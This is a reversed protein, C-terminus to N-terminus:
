KGFRGEEKAKVCVAKRDEHRDCYANLSTWIMRALSAQSFHKKGELEEYLKVSEEHKGQAYLLAVRFYQCPMQQAPSAYFQAIDLYKEATDLDGKFVMQAISYNLYLSNMNQSTIAFRRSYYEGNEMEHFKPLAYMVGEMYKMSEENGAVLLLISYYIQQAVSLGEDSAVKKELYEEALELRGQAMAASLYNNSVVEVDPHVKYAWLWLSMESKWVPIVNLTTVCAGVLWVVAVAPVFVASFKRSLKFRNRIAGYDALVLAMVFYALPLAMFREHGLNELISLPVIHLVLVIGLLASCLMMSSISRVRIAQVGLLGLGLLLVADFGLAMPSFPKLGITPSFLSIAGFPLVTKVLYYKLAEFPLMHSFSHILWGPGIAMHYQEGVSAGRVVFYVIYFVFSWALLPLVYRGFAVVGGKRQEFNFQWWLLCLAIGPLVLGLEKSFVAGALSLLYVAAGTATRLRWRLVAYSGLLMFTTAMVDFRGSVWATSEVLAPHLVYILGALFALFAPRARGLRTAIMLTLLYVLSVNAVFFVLNVGHSISPSQGLWNFELYWLLFPLPRLYSTGELVPQAILAWSLPENLLDTRDVFLLTDDWVYEFGLTQWYLALTISVLLVLFGYQKM